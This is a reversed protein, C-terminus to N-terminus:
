QSDQKKEEKTEVAAQESMAASFSQLKEVLKVEKAKKFALKAAQFRYFYDLVYFILCLSFNEICLCVTVKKEESEKKQLM